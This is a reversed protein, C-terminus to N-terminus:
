ETAHKSTPLPPNNKNKPEDMPLDKAEENSLQKLLNLLEMNNRFPLAKREPLMRLDGCIQERLELDLYLHLIFTKILRM